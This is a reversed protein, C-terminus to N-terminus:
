SPFFKPQPSKSQSESPKRFLKRVKHYQSPKRLMVDCMLIKPQQYHIAYSM